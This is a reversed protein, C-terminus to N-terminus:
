RKCELDYIFENFQKKTLHYKKRLEKPTLPCFQFSTNLFDWEYGAEGSRLVSMGDTSTAKGIYTYQKGAGDYGEKICVRDGKELEHVRTTGNYKVNSSGEMDGVTWVGSNVNLQEIISKNLWHKYLSDLKSSEDWVTYTDLTFTFPNGGGGSGGSSISPM